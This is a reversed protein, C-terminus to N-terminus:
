RLLLGPAVTRRRGFWGLGFVAHVDPRQEASVVLLVVDLDFAGETRRRGPGRPTRHFGPFYVCCLTLMVPLERQGKM